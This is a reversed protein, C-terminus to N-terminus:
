QLINWAEQSLVMLVPGVDRNNEVAAYATRGTALHTVAYATTNWSSSVHRGGKGEIDACLRGVSTTGPRYLQAMIHVQGDGGYGVFVSEIERSNSVRYIELNTGFNDNWEISDPRGIVNYVWNRTRYLDFRDVASGSIMAEAGVPLVLSSLVCTLVVINMCRRM